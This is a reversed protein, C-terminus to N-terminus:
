KRARMRRVERAQNADEVQGGLAVALADLRMSRRTALTEMEEPTISYPLCHKNSDMYEYHRENAVRALMWDTSMISTILFKQLFSLMPALCELTSWTATWPNEIVWEIMDFKKM